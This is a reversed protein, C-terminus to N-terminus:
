GSMRLHRTHSAGVTRGLALLDPDDWALTAMDAVRRTRSTRTHSAYTFDLWVTVKHLLYGTSSRKVPVPKM